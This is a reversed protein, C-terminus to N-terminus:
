IHTEPRSLGGPGAGSCSSQLLCINKTEVPDSLGVLKDLLSEAPATCFKSIWYINLSSKKSNLSISTM